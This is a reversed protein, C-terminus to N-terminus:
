CGNKEMWENVRKIEKNNRDLFHKFTKPFRSFEACQSILLNRYNHVQEMNLTFHPENKTEM